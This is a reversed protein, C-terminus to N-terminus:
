GHCVLKIPVGKRTFISLPAILCLRLGVLWVLRCTTFNTVYGLNCSAFLGLQLARFQLNGPENLRLLRVLGTRYRIM